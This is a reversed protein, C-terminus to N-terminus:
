KISITGQKESLNIEGGSPPEPAAPAAPPTEDKASNDEIIESAEPTTEPEPEKNEALIAELGAEKEKKEEFVNTKPAEPAEPTEDESPSEEASSLAQSLVEPATSEEAVPTEAPKIIEEKPRANIKKIEEKKSDLKKKDVGTGYAQHLLEDDHAIDIAPHNINEKAGDSDLLQSLRGIHSLTEKREETEKSAEKKQEQKKLTNKAAFIGQYVEAEGKKWMRKGPVAMKEIWLLAYKYFPISNIKLFATALTLLGLVAVPPLWLPAPLGNKTMAIYIMYDLGGGAVVIILQKITVNGIITDERRVNQPVKFQM